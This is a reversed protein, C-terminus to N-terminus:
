VTCVIVALLLSMEWADLEMSVLLWTIVWCDLNRLM